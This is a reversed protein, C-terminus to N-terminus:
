GRITSGREGPKQVVRVRSTYLLQHRAQADAWTAPFSGRGLVLEEIAAAVQRACTNPGIAGM